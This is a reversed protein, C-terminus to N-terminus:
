NFNRVFFVFFYGPPSKYVKLPYISDVGISIVALSQDTICQYYNNCGSGSAEGQGCIGVDTDNNGETIEIYKTASGYDILAYAFSITPSLCDLSGNNVLNIYFTSDESGSTADSGLFFIGFTTPETTSPNLYLNLCYTRDLTCVDITPNKTPQFSPIIFTPEATTPIDTTPATTPPQACKLTIIARVSIDPEGAGFCLTRIDPSKNIRLNYVSGNMLDTGANIVLNNFCQYWEDCGDDGPAQNAGCRQIFTNNYEYIDLYMTDTTYYARTYNFSITPQLCNQEGVINFYIYFNEEIYSVKDISSWIQQGWETEDYGSDGGALVDVFYCTQYDTSCTDTPSPTTPQNSPQRTLTPTATTPSTPSPTPNGQYFFTFGGPKSSSGLSYLLNRIPNCGNDGYKCGYPTPWNIIYLTSGYQFQIYLTTGINNIDISYILSSSPLGTSYIDDIDLQTATDSNITTTPNEPTNDPDFDFYYVKSGACIYMINRIEDAVFCKISVGGFSDKDIFLESTPDIGITDVSKRIIGIDSSAFYLYGGYIKMAGAYYGPSANTDWEFEIPETRGNYEYETMNFYFTKVDGFNDGQSAIYMINAQEDVYLMCTDANCVPFIYTCESLTWWVAYPCTYYSYVEQDILNFYRIRMFQEQPDIFWIRDNTEDLYMSALRQQTVGTREFM